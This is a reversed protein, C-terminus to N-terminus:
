DNVILLDAQRTIRCAAQGAACDPQDSVPGPVRFVIGTRYLKGHRRNWWLRIGRRDFRDSFIYSGLEVHQVM